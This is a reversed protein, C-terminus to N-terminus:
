RGGRDIWRRLLSQGFIGSKEPHFQFATVNDKEVAACFQGFYDATYSIVDANEPQPYYSNVFYVFGSDAGNRASSIRNWGIQPVKGETFRVVRGPLLSLGPVGQSEESEDFLVQLGVCIGLLPVGRKALDKIREDMGNRRLRDMVAGFAGVGPLVI